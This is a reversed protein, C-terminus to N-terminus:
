IMSCPVVYFLYVKLLDVKPLGLGFIIEQLPMVECYFRQRRDNNQIKSIIEPINSSRAAEYLVKRQMEREEFNKTSEGTFKPYPFDSPSM